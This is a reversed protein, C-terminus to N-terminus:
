NINMGKMWELRNAGVKHLLSYIEYEAQRDESKYEKLIKPNNEFIYRRERGIYGFDKDYPDYSIIKKSVSINFIQRPKFLLRALTDTPITIFYGEPSHELQELKLITSKETIQDPSFILIGNEYELYM